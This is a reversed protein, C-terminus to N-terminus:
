SAAPVAEAERRKLASELQSVRHRLLLAPLQGLLIVGVAFVALDARHWGELGLRSDLASGSWGMLAAGVIGVFMSPGKM